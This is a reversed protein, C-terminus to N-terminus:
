AKYHVLKALGIRKYIANEAKVLMLMMDDPM